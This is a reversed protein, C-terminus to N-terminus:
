QPSTSYLNKLHCMTIFPHELVQHPTIRISPNLHLMGKLLDLFVQVDATTAAKDTSSNFEQSPFQIFLLFLSFEM